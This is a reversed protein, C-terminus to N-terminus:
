GLTLRLERELALRTRPNPLHIGREIDSLHSRQIAVSRALDSQTLGLETRKRRIEYGLAGALTAVSTSHFPTIEDRGVRRGPVLGRGSHSIERNRFHSLWPRIQVLFSRVFTRRERRGARSVIRIEIESDPGRLSVTTMGYENKRQIRVIRDFM